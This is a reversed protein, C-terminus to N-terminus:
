FEETAREDHTLRGDSCRLVCFASSLVEREEGCIGDSRSDYLLPRLNRCLRLHQILVNVAYRSHSGSVL